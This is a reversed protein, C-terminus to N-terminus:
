EGGEKAQRAYIWGAASAFIAACGGGVAVPDFQGKLGLFWFVCGWFCIVSVFSSLRAIDLNANNKNYLLDKIISM